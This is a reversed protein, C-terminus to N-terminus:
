INDLSLLWPTSQGSQQMAMTKSMDSPSANGEETCM